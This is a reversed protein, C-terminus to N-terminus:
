GAPEGDGADGEDPDPAFGEEIGLLEMLAAATTEAIAAAGGVLRLQVPAGARAALWDRAAPSGVLDQGDILLLVGGWAAAAPGAALGDAYGRGTALWLQGPDAGAATSADAIAVSTEYRTAGALREVVRRDHSARLADAVGDSIAGQGGVITVTRVDLDRLAQDTETPIVESTTLLIPTREFAALGSVAIADAWARGPDAHHGLALYAQPAGIRGAILRATDFRNAGALRQPRAGVDRLDDMVRDSLASPGGLVIAQTAGLRQIEDAVVRDLRQSSTLLLPGGEAAALPGGTLADAYEDARAIVVTPASGEFPFADESVAVATAIRDQGQLRTMAEDTPPEQGGNIFLEIFHEGTVVGDVRERAITGNDAHEAYIGFDSEPEPEGGGFSEFRAVVDNNQPQDQLAEILDDLSAVVRSTPSEGELIGGDEFHEGTVGGTILVYGFDFADEPVVLSLTVLEEAGRGALTVLIDLTSGPRVPGAEEAPLPDGGDVSLAVDVIRLRRVAREIEGGIEVRDIEVDAFENFQVAELMGWMEFISEFGIDFDSAFLNDRTITWEDGDVTTGSATWTLASTGQGWRDITSDIADWLDLASLFPTAIPLVVDSRSTRSVSTDLDTLDTTVPATDPVQSLDARVGAFRDQDITGFLDGLNMMKYPGFTPDNIVTLARGDNAGFRTDGVAGFWHGFAMAQDDCVFTTTGSAYRTGDGYSLVAGFNGGPTPVAEIQTPAVSQARVPSPVATIPLREPGALDNVLGAVRADRVPFPLRMPVLSARGASAERRSVEEALAGSLRVERPGAAEAAGPYTLVDLMEQAPTFGAIKSPGFSFGFALAGILRGDDAYLPSGSMGAWIGDARHIADNGPRDADGVIISRGHLFFHDQVGLIEVTFPEPDTGREVTWGTAIMGETIEEVPFPEPCGAPPGVQGQASSAPLTALVIALLALAGVLRGTRLNCAYSIV